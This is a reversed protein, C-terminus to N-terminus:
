TKWRLLWRQLLLFGSDLLGYLAAMTLMYVVVIETALLSSAQMMRQGLGPVGFIEAAVVAMWAQGLATRLGVLIGPLAAPLLIKVLRAGPSRFGFADAVEILDRDVGRVAGHAAFFVIWFVGIAIIFIAASPQVGFWIIAFPVWALGPIPRLLRVVWATLADVTPFMGAVVGAIVGLGAGVGLGLAYHGLSAWVARSWDGSAFEAAFAGPIASPGPLMMPNVIRLRPLLEWLVLFGALGIAGLGVSAVVGRGGLRRTRPRQVPTRAPM